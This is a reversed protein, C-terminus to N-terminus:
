ANSGRRLVPRSPVARRADAGILTLVTSKIIIVRILRGTLDPAGTFAVRRNAATRGFLRKPDRPSVGEVLVEVTTGVAAANKEANIKGQLRLLAAHRRAIEVGPVKPGMGMARTGERESYKFVFADDFRIEELARVTAQFDEDTEGPFGAILDTTLSLGPIRRRLRGALARYSALTYGRHMLSLIRDSGSQLPLHLHPCVQSVEAMTDLLEDPFDSPHSTMFRVRLIGEVAGVRRLLGAFSVGESSYRNVNQGLLMVERCGDRALGEVEAVVERPPRSVDPGRVYPVVCYACFNGCGRMAAVFAKLRDTRKRPLGTTRPPRDTAIDILMGRRGSAQAVLEPLRDFARTGCIVRVWPCKRAIEGSRAQAMCGTVALIFGQERVARAKLAFLAGWVRDEAHRRVACTNLVVLEAENERDTLAWGDREFLGVIVESDLDNMQCGYTRLHVRRPAAEAPKSQETM